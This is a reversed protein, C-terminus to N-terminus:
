DAQAVMDAERFGAYGAACARGEGIDRCVYGRARARAGAGKGAGAGAKRAKREGARGDRGCRSKTEGALGTGVGGLESEEGGVGGAAGGRVRGIFPQLGKITTLLKSNQVTMEDLQPTLQAIVDNAAALEQALKSIRERLRDILADKERVQEETWSKVEDSQRQLETKLVQVERELELVKERSEEVALAEVERYERAMEKRRLESVRVLTEVYHVGNQVGTLTVTSGPTGLIM